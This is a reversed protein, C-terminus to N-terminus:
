RCCLPSPHVPMGGPGVGPPVVGRLGGTARTWGDIKYDPGPFASARPAMARTLTDFAVVGLAGLGVGITEYQVALARSGPCRHPGPRVASGDARVSARM